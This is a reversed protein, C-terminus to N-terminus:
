VEWELHYSEWPELIGEEFRKEMEKSLGKIHGAGVVCVIKGTGSKLTNTIQEAMFQDREEILVTYITNSFKKTEALLKEVVEEKTIDQLKIDESSHLLPFLVVQGLIKIKEWLSMKNLLRQLTLNIDRDILQIDAGVKRAEQIATLMEEGPLMGTREGIKKQFYRLIKALIGTTSLPIGSSKEQSPSTLQLYRKRCLEVGVIDPKEEEIVEIVEERSEPLVHAVGILIVREGIRKIM